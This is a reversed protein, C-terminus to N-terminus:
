GSLWHDFRLGTLKELEEVDPRYRDALERADRKDLNINLDKLNVTNVLERVRSVLSHLRFWQKRHTTTLIKEFLIRPWYVRHISARNPNKEPLDEPSFENPDRDLFRCVRRLEEIPQRKIDRLRIFLFDKRDFYELYRRLQGSYFGIQIIQPYLDWSDRFSFERPDHNFNRLKMKYASFARQVPCRLNVIFKPDELDRNIREAVGERFIYDSTIEGAVRDSTCYKFNDKYWDLGEDYYRDFFHLEKTHPPLCFGSHRRLCYDLWSTAAKQVGLGLFDPATMIPLGM